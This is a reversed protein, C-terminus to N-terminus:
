VEERTQMAERFEAKTMPRNAVQYAGAHRRFAQFRPQGNGADHDFPEGVLFGGRIRLAPPLVELMEVYTEETTPQWEIPTRQQQTKWECFDDYGMLEADPYEERVQELTKGYLATRGTDPHAFDILTMRSRSVYCDTATEALEAWTMYEKIKAATDAM